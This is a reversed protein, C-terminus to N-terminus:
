PRLYTEGPRQPMVKAQGTYQRIVLSDKRISERVEPSLTQFAPVQAVVVSGSRPSSDTYYSEDRDCITNFKPLLNEVTARDVKEIVLMNNAIIDLLDQIFNTAEPRKRLDTIWQALPKSSTLTQVFM